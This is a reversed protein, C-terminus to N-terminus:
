PNTIGVRLVSGIRRNGAEIIAFYIGTRVPLGKDNHGNWRASVNNGATAGPDGAAITKRIVLEGISDYVTITVPAAADLRYAFTL